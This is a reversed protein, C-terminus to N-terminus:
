DIGLLHAPNTVTMWDIEAQSVGNERMGNLLERWAFTHIPMWAQGGCSSLICQEAGVAEVVEAYGKLTWRSDPMGIVYYILEIYAGLKATEVMQEVTM